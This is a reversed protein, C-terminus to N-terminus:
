STRVVAGSRRINAARAQLAETILMRLDTQIAEIDQNANIRRIEFGTLNAFNAEVQALYERREFHDPGSSCRLGIRGLAEELPLDFLIVLDPRPVICENAARIEEIDLGLAGQYAMSSIYYRDMLVVEGRALAPGINRALDDARDELFLEFERRAPLRGEKALRRIEMGIPGDTPERFLSAAIGQGLLWDRLLRGQTSKGSGDIGELAVLCGTGTRPFLQLPNTM